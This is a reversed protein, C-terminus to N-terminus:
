YKRQAGDPMLFDPTKTQLHGFPITVTLSGSLQNVHSAFRYAYDPTDLSTINRPARYMLMVRITTGRKFQKTFSADVVHSHSMRKTAARLPSTYLYSCGLLMQKKRSIVYRNSVSIGPEFSHFNNTTGEAVHGFSRIYSVDASASLKYRDSFFWKDYEVSWTFRHSQGNNFTSQCTKGQGDTWQYDVISRRAFEYDFLFIWDKFFTYDLSLKEIISNKLYPNGMAYVNESVQRVFPNLTSRIPSLLNRSYSLSLSHNDSIEWNVNASPFWEMEHRHTTSGITRQDYDNHRYEGRVGVETSVADSWERAYSVNFAHTWESTAFRNTTNADDVWTEDSHSFDRNWRKQDSDTNLYQGQYNFTMTNAKDMKWVAAADAAVYSNRGNMNQRFDEYSSYTQDQDQWRQYKLRERSVSRYNSAELRANVTLKSRNLSYSLMAGYSPKTWPEEQDNLTRSRFPQENAASITQTLTTQGGETKATSIYAAAGLKQTKSLQYEGNWLAYGGMSQSHGSEENEVKQGIGRYDYSSTVDTHGNMDYCVVSCYQTFSKRHHSLSAALTPSLRETSYDTQINVVGMVGEQPDRIVVNVIAGQTSASYKSGPTRIIEVRLIDQPRLSRLRNMLAVGGELPKQGNIYITSQGKGLVSVGGSEDLSLLPVDRLLEAANPLLLDAGHPQFVYKGKELRFTSRAVTVEAEGLTRATSDAQLTFTLDRGTKYTICQRQFGSCSVEVLVSDQASLGQMWFQGKVDTTEVQLVHNDAYSVVSVVAGKLPMGSSGKVTGQCRSVNQASLSNMCLAALAFILKLTRM